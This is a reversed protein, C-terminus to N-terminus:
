RPARRQVESGYALIARGLWGVPPAAHAVGAAGLEENLIAEYFPNLGRGGYEEPWSLGLWGGAYLQQQWRKKYEHEAASDSIPPAPGPDNAALWTRLDRRFSAEDASDDYDM